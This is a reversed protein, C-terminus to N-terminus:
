GIASIAEVPESRHQWGTQGDLFSWAVGVRGLGADVEVVVGVANDPQERFRVLDGIKITQM